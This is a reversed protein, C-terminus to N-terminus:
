RRVRGKLKEEEGAPDRGHKGGCGAQLQSEPEQWTINNESAELDTHLM